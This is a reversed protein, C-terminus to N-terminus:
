PRLSARIKQHMKERMIVYVAFGLAVLCGITIAAWLPLGGPVLGWPQGNRGSTWFIFSVIIITARTFISPMM